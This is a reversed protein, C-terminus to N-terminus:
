EADPDNTALSFHAKKKIEEREVMGAKILATLLHTMKSTSFEAFEPVGKQIDTITVPADVTALFEVIRTKHVENELQTKTPKKATSRKKDLLEIEHEMVDILDAANNVGSEALISIIINFADRKTMKNTTM